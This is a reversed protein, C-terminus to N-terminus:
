VESNAVTNRAKPIQIFKAPRNNEMTTGIIINRDYKM